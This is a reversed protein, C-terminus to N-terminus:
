RWYMRVKQGAVENTLSFAKAINEITNQVSLKMDKCMHVAACIGEEIGESRGEGKRDDWAKCMNVVETGDEKVTTLLEMDIGAIDCITEAAQAELQSYRSKEGSLLKDMSEKDGACSLIEFLERNETKFVSFDSYDHYDYLNLRYNTIFPKLRKDIRLMDYLYKAGDWEKHTGLYLVLTIIPVFRDSQRLGCIYEDGPQLIKQKKNDAIRKRLQKDYGLVEAKMARFVMGYDVMSQNELTLISLYIGKWKRIKDQILIGKKKKEMCFVIDPDAEELEDAKIFEEGQFLAGNFLDAFRHEDNFYDREAYDKRGM